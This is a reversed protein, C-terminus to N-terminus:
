KTGERHDDLYKAVALELRDIQAMLRKVETDKGKAKAQEMMYAAMAISKAATELPTDFQTIDPHDTHMTKEKAMVQQDATVHGIITSVMELDTITVRRPAKMDNDYVISVDYATNSVQQVSLTACGVRFPKKYEHM